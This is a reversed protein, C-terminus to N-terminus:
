SRRRRKDKIVKFLIDRMMVYNYFALVIGVCAGVLMAVVLMGGSFSSDFVVAVTWCCMALLVQTLLVKVYMKRPNQRKAQFCFYIWSVIVLVIWIAFTVSVPNKFLTEMIITKLIIFQKGLRDYRQCFYLM